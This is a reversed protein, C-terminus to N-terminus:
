NWVNTLLNSVKMSPILVNTLITLVILPVKVINIIENLKAEVAFVSYTAGSPFSLPMPDILEGQRVHPLANLVAVAPSVTKKLPPM